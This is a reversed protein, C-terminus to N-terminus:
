FGVPFEWPFVHQEVYSQSCFEPVRARTCMCEASLWLFHLREHLMGAQSAQTCVTSMLQSVGLFVSYICLSFRQM